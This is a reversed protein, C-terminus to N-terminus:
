AVAVTIKWNFFASLTKSATLGMLLFDAELSSFRRAVGCDRKGHRFGAGFFLKEVMSSIFCSLKSVSSPFVFEVLVRAQSIQLACARSAL